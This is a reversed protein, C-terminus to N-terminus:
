ATREIAHRTLGALADALDPDALELAALEAAAEAAYQEMRAAAAHDAGTARFAATVAQIKAQPRDTPGAWRDLEARLLGDAQAQAHLMLFTQKDALIDGGLQKGTAEGFADLLDDQLQFALGVREGFRYWRQVREASAGAAEAGMACAAAVLVSTKLRIMECYDEVTVDQRGAFALDAQQGVCVELATRNFCALLGPLRDAPAEALATVALTYMADGSLIAASTDWRAHVTPRGRRLPAEDMIDDHMLTFNHFLEVAVAVPAAAERNGEAEGALLALVPRMRKGGLGMLYHVPAYLGYAADEPYRGLFTALAHESEARLRAAAPHDM